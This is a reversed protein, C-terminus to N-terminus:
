GNILQYFEQYEEDSYKDANMVHQRLADLQDGDYGKFLINTLKTRMEAKSLEISVIQPATEEKQDEAGDVSLQYSLDIRKFYDEMIMLIQELDQKKVILSDHKTLCFFKKKKVTELIGDIFIDSEVKQLMVAFDKYSNAEKKYKNIWKVVSPFLEKIKKKGVSNCRATSFLLEFMAIKGQKRTELGLEGAIYDYLQGSVSLEKFRKFDYTDLKSTLIHSLLTFQSNALDIQVLGNQNCIENVLDSCMNTLNTDLRNNTTNRAARYQKNEIQRVAEDYSLKFAIRKRLIFEKEDEIVFRAKDQILTKGELNARELAKDTGIKITVGDKELEILSQTIDENTKFEEISLNTIRQKIIKRLKDFDIDLKMIDLEFMNTYKSSDKNVEIIDKYGVTTFPNDCLVPSLTFLYYNTSISYSYCLNISYNNTRNIIGSELLPNLWKYYREDFAKDLFTSPKPIFSTLDGHTRFSDRLLIGVFKYCNETQTKTLGLSQIDLVLQTPLSIYTTLSKKGTTQLGGKTTKAKPM